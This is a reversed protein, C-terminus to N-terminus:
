LWLYKGGYHKIGSAEERYSDAWVVVKLRLGRQALIAFWTRGPRDGTDKASM